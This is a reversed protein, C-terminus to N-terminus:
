MQGRAYIIESDLFRTIVLMVGVFFPKQLTRVKHEGQTGAAWVSKHLLDM